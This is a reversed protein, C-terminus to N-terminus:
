KLYNELCQIKSVRVGIVFLALHAVVDCHLINKIMPLLCFLFM